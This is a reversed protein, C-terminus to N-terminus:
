TGFYDAFTLDRRRLTKKYFFRLGSMRIEVTGPAFKKENLVHLPYVTYRRSEVNKRSVQRFVRCVAERPSHLWPNYSSFLQSTRARGVDTPSTPACPGGKQSGSALAEVAGRSTGRKQTRRSLPKTRGRNESLHNRKGIVRSYPCTCTHRFVSHCKEHRVAARRASAYVQIPAEQLIARMFFTFNPLRLEAAFPLPTGFFTSSYRAPTGSGARRVKFLIRAVIRDATGGSAVSTM